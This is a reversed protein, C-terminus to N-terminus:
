TPPGQMESGPAKPANGAGQGGQQAPDNAPDGSAPAGGGLPTMGRALSSIPPMGELFAEEINIKDDMRRILQKALWKPDINPVQILLPFIEKANAIEAARNPRGSSGAEVDLILDQAIE